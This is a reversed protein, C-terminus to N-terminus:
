TFVKQLYVQIKQQSISPVSFRFRANYNEYQLIFDQNATNTMQNRASM